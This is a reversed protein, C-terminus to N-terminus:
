SETLGVAHLLRGQNVGDDLCGTAAVDCQTSQESLRIGSHITLIRIISTWLMIKLLREMFEVNVTM